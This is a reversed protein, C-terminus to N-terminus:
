SATKSTAQLIIHEMTAVIEEWSCKRAKEIGLAIREDRTAGKARRLGEAFSEADSAITILDSYQRVVDAVPTSIVPKGTALYELAKTPNIFETAENIAFCMMCADFARCYDPLQAYDRPGLWYINARQPLESPDVKVVPGILVFSWDPMLDAVRGVLEYDMREDIVGFWGAIPKGIARIDEPVGPGLDQARAFHDYEVGCGFVHVNQHQKRKKEFLEYGGTFVIDASDLLRKENEILRTPAGKFQSLEDMCDYVIARSPIEGLSWEAMMPSYYWLVPDDFELEKIKGRVLGLLVTHADGENASQSRLHPIAVTVNESGPQEEIFPEDDPGVDHIPEEIFLVPHTRALRSLIQQPRQWVFSWRLHSFAMIVFSGSGEKHESSGSWRGERKAIVEM